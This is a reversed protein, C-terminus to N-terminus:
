TSSLLPRTYAGAVRAGGIVSVGVVQRAEVARAKARQLQLQHAEELEPQAQWINSEVDDFANRARMELALYWGTVRRAIDAM